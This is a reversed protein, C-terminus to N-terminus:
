WIVPSDSITCHTWSFYKGHRGRLNVYPIIKYPVDKPPGAKWPQVIGEYLASKDSTAPQAKQRKASNRRNEKQDAGCGCLFNWTFLSYLRRKTVTKFFM